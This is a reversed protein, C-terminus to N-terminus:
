DNEFFGSYEVGNEPVVGKYYFLESLTVLQYGQEVLWPIFLVSAEYSSEHISHILVVAGDKAKEKIREYIILGDRDRWDITDLNWHIIPQPLNVLYKGNSGGPLRVYDAVHGTLKAIILNTKNVEPWVVEPKATSMDIHSYTHSAIEHGNEYLVKPVEEFSGKIRDGLFFFTVKAGYQECLDMIRYDRLNQYAPGDDYTIAIMPKEPDLERIALGAPNGELDYYFFAKAEELDETYFFTKQHAALTNEKFYFVVQNETLYFSEYDETQYPQKYSVFEDEAAEPFKEAVYSQLREKIIAFYSEKILESGTVRKETMTNYVLPLFEEGRQFVISYYVGTNYAAYCVEEGEAFFDDAQARIQRDVMENGSYIEGLVPTETPTPTPTLTATPTATATPVVTETPATTGTPMITATPAVTPTPMPTVLEPRQVEQTQNREKWETFNEYGRLRLTYIGILLVLLVIWTFLLIYIAITMAKKGNERSNSM